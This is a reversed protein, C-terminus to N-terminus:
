AAEFLIMGDRQAPYAIGGIVAKTEEFREPHMVFIDFSHDIGRLAERIRAGELRADRVEPDLVLLDVDSDPTMTGTAASGFLIIRQPKSVSLIRSVIQKRVREDLGM